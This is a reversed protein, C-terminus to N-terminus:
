EAELMAAGVVGLLTETAVCRLEISVAPRTADAVVDMVSLYAVADNVGNGGGALKGIPVARARPCISSVVSPMTYPPILQHLQKSGDAYHVVVEGGPYYCKLTKVLNATLLYVKELRRPKDLKLVVKSPFQEFPETCCIALIDKRPPSALELPLGLTESLDAPISIGTIHKGSKWQEPLNGYEFISMVSNMIVFGFQDLDPLPRRWDVGHQAGTYDIRWQTANSFLRKMEANYCEGLNIPQMRRTLADSGRGLNWNVASATANHGALEVRVPLSGPSLLAWVEALSLSITGTANPEIEVDEAFIKGAVTIKATGVVPAANNNRIQIRLTKSKEDVAPSAVAPGGKNLGPIYEEVITWPQRVDLDLPHWWSANGARLELFVTPKGEAGPVLTAKHGEARTQNMKEQPDHVKAVTAGTVSFVVPKGVTCLLTGAVAPSRGELSVEILHQKAEPAEIVLRCCNVAPQLKYAVPKGYLKVGAVAARVPLEVRLRRAVPTAVKMWLGGDTQRYEYTVDVHRFDARGWTSPFSPKLVLLNKGFHPKVGFLGDVVAQLFLPDMEMSLSGTAHWISGNHMYASEVVTKMAPWHGDVDGATCASHFTACTDGSAVYHHSWQIPWWDNIFEFTGPEELDSRHLNERIYRMAMYNRLPNGIGRWISYNQECTHPRPRNLGNRAEASSWAGVDKQWLHKGYQDAVLDRLKHYRDAFRESIAANGFGPQHDVDDLVDAMEAGAKLASWGLATQLASYGGFNCQDCNWMEYYGTMIGDGDPDSCALGHELARRASPWLVELFRRDGTWRWHWWCQEAFYFDMDEHWDCIAFTTMFYRQRGKVDQTGSLFKLSDAVEDHLGAAEFGYFGHNIKGYKAYTLGHIFCPYEFIMRAKASCSNVVNDFRADPTKVQMRRRQTTWFDRSQRVAADSHDRVHLFKKEPELGKGIWHDFWKKKMAEVWASDAFPRFRLRKQADAVGQRNYDSYGWVCLSRCKAPVGRAAQLTVEIRGQKTTGQNAAGQKGAMGLFIQTYKGWAFQTYSGKDAVHKAKDLHWTLTVDSPEDALVEADVAFGFWDILARAELNVTVGLGADRCVWRASGPSLVVDISEFADLWKTRDGITVAIRLQGEVGLDPLIGPQAYAGSGTRLQMALRPQDGVRLWWAGTTIIYNHAGRGNHRAFSDGDVPQHGEGERPEGVLPLCHILRGVNLGPLVPVASPQQPGHSVEAQVDIPNARGAGSAAAILAAAVPLAASCRNKGPYKM